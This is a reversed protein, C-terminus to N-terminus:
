YLIERCLNNLRPGPLSKTLMDALNTETPEKAIRITGAAVAERVRHYAISNHKKSLTSVPVTSNTVCAQNDCFVNTPGELPIGFMRLKYRLSEILEVATKMAVFESGFSSTEVTNQKKSFWLIPANNLFVLIGTHSRRTVRNGAHDADVFAHMDVGRGRPTPANPPIKEAADRYFTTWDQKVFRSEDLLITSDDFVMKSRGHSKLYAFIHFVQELHGHRPQVLFSSLTAVEYYIDIRGLEVSWRLIGILNQYYNAQVM